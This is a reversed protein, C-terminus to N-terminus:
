FTDRKELFLQFWLLIPSCYQSNSCSLIVLVWMSCLTYSFSTKKSSSIVYIAMVIISNCSKSYCISANIYCLFSRFTRNMLYNKQGSYNRIRCNKNQHLLGLGGGGGKNRAGAGLNVFYGTGPSLILPNKKKKSIVIRM